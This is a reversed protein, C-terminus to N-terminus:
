EETHLRRHSQISGSNTFYDAVVREIPESANRYARRPLSPWPIPRAHAFRAGSGGRAEIPPSTDSAVFTMGKGSVARARLAAASPPNRGPGPSYSNVSFSSAARHRQNEAIFYAKGPVSATM